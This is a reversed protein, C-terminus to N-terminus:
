SDLLIATGLGNVRQYQEIAYMSQGTGTEAALHVVVDQNALSEAVASRDTVSAAILRVHEAIDEALAPRTHIQGHFNDLVTVICQERLLRRVLHTGIFGAGGTVLVRLGYAQISM